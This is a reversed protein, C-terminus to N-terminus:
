RHIVIKDSTIKANPVIITKKDDTVMITSFIQIEKVVGSAGGADVEDGVKFPQFLILMVGAAFNALSGQLALGVALGAAGIIAVFSTTEIGLKNLAAIIVFILLLYYIINKLFAALTENLKSKHMASGAIKSLLRAVWRGIIFILIAYVFSLGYRALYSLAKDLMNQM